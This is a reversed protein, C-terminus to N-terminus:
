RRLKADAMQRIAHEFAIGAYLRNMNELSRIYRPLEYSLAQSLSDVLDNHKGKPFAFLEDELERLFSAGKPFYVHGAEFKGQQLYLRMTKSGQVPVAKVRARVIKPLEQALVIGTSADEVLIELPKFREGLEKAKRLLEPYTYRGREAHALYYDDGKILFTTCASFSNEEGPKAGTDWSQIMKGGQKLAPLEAPDYYRIWKSEIMGGELPVPNQQYQAAFNYSGIEQQLAKLVDVPEREPHLPEGAKRRHFEDKGIQIAEDAEAIAPLILNNWDGSMEWLYECLDDAHVRQMVVVIAGCKKEDLRSLLTNSFWEKLRKRHTESQADVAKQPDDLIIIDGGLGTLAGFVSTSLRFGHATTEVMDEVCRAIRMKQFARRYWDSTVIARFDSAHKSALDAGYSIVIIRRSPDHGLVFAPFAVSVILSKLSRPPLNVVQRRNEGQRVCELAYAIAKHHWNRAFPKGPNLTRFCREAFAGFDSRVLAAFLAQDSIQKHPM